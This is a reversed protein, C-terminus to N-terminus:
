LPKCKAKDGRRFQKGAYQNPLAKATVLKGQWWGHLTVVM